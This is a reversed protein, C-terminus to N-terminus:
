KDVGVHGVAPFYVRVYNLPELVKWEAAFDPESLIALFEVSRLEKGGNKGVGRGGVVVIGPRSKIETM